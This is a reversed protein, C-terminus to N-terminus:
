KGSGFYAALFPKMLHWATIAGGVVPLIWLFLKRVAKAGKFLEVLEGTNDVVKQTLLTNEHLALKLDTIVDNHKDIAEDHSKVAVELKNLREHLLCNHDPM